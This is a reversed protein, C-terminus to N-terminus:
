PQQHGQAMGASPFCVPGAAPVGCLALHHGCVCLWFLHDSPCRCVFTWLMFSFASYFQERHVYKTCTTIHPPPLVRPTIDKSGPSKLLQIIERSHRLSLDQGCTNILYCWPMGLALLDRMCHLDAWLHSTSGLGGEKGLFHPLCWSILVTQQFPFPEKFSDVHVCYDNQLMFLERFFSEFEKHLTMFYPTCAAEEAALACTIRHSQTVNETCSPERFPMKRFSVKDESLAKCAEALILSASINLRWLHKQAQLNVTYFVFPFSVSHSLVGFPCYRHTENSRLFLREQFVVDSVVLLTNQHSHKSRAPLTM